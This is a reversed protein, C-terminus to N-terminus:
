VVRAGTFLNCVWDSSPNCPVQIEDFERPPFRKSRVRLLLALIRGASRESSRSIAIGLGPRRRRLAPRLSEASLRGDTGALRKAPRGTRSPRGRRREPELVECHARGPGDSRSASVGHPCFGRARIRV